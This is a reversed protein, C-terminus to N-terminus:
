ILRAQYSLVPSAQRTAHLRSVKYALYYGNEDVHPYTDQAQCAVNAAFAFSYVFVATKSRM